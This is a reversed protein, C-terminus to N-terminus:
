EEAPICICADVLRESMDITRMSIHDGLQRGATVEYSRKFYRLHGDMSVVLADLFEYRRRGEVQVRCMSCCPRASCIGELECSQAMDCSWCEVIMALQLGTNVCFYDGRLSCRCSLNNRGQLAARWVHPMSSQLPVRVAALTRALDFRAEEAAAQTTAVEAQIRVKEEEPVTKQRGLVKGALSRGALLALFVYQWALWCALMQEPAMSAPCVGNKHIDHCCVPTEM